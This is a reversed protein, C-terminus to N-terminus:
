LITKYTDYYAYFRDGGGHEVAATPKLLLLSEAPAAPFIRREHADNIIEHFDSKPDFSFVSLKFGNQGEAKAHCSGAMCGAKALMPLVDRLFSPANTEAVLTEEPAFLKLLKSRFLTTYPFLTSRPPRLYM